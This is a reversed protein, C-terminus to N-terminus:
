RLYDTLGQGFQIAGYIMPGWWIMVWGGPLVSLLTLALGGVLWILGYAMKQKAKGKNMIPIWSKETRSREYDPCLYGIPGKIAHSPCIPKDHCYCNM